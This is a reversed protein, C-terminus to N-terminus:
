LECSYARNGERRRHHTSSCRASAALVLPGPDVAASGARRRLTSCSERIRVPYQVVRGKRTARIHFRNRDRSRFDVVLLVEEGRLFRRGQEVRKPHLASPVVCIKM